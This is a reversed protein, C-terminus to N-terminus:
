DIFVMPQLGTIVYTVGSDIERCCTEIRTPYGKDEHFEVKLLRNEAHAREVEAFLDDITPWRRPDLLTGSGQEFARIVEDNFVAVEVPGPPGDCFCDRTIVYHYSSLNQSDWIRRAPIIAGPGTLDSCGAVLAILAFPMVRGVFRPM